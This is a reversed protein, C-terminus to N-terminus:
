VPQIVTPRYTPPEASGRVSRTRAVPVAATPRRLAVAALAALGAIIAILLAAGAPLGQHVARLDLASRAAVQPVAPAAVVASADPAAVAPAQVPTVPLPFAQPLPAAAPPVALVAAPAPAVTRNPAPAHRNVTGPASPTSSTSAAAPGTTAPPASGGAAAPMAWRVALTPTRAVFGVQEVTNPAGPLTRVGVGVNVDTLWRSCLAPIPFTATTASADFTGPVAPDPADAPKSAQPLPGGSGAFGTLARVAALAPPASTSFLQHAAGDVQLRLDCGTVTADAPVGSLDFQLYATKDGVGSSDDPGGVVLDNPSATPDSGPVVTGEIRSQERWFWVAQALPADTSGAASGSVGSIGASPASSAAGAPGTALLLLSGAAAFGLTAATSRRLVHGM